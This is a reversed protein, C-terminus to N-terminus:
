LVAVAIPLAALAATVAACGTLTDVKTRYAQMAEYTSYRTLRSQRHDAAAAGTVWVSTAAAAAYLLNGLAHWWFGPYRQEFACEDRDTSYDDDCDAWVDAVPPLWDFPDVLAALSVLAAIVAGVIMLLVFCGVCGVDDKRSAM